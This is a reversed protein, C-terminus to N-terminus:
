HQHSKSSVHLVHSAQEEFSIAEHVNKKKISCFSGGENTLLQAQKQNPSKDVM